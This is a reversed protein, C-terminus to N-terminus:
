KELVGLHIIRAGTASVPNCSKGIVIGAYPAKYECIIDGFIDRQTAIVEDKDVFQALSPIVELSGGHSTYLWRSSTCVIPVHDFHSKRKAIMGLDALVQKIGQVTPKAHKPQFVQPDGVEVTIAPIGMEAAAGRLTRDSPPNDLIITPRQLQAMRSAKAEALDARVYLSNVRGFSATHLDILYDFSSVLRDLLRAAYVEGQNGGELGPMLHNLDNGDRYERTHSVYGPLNIVPCAIICGALTNLKLSEILRHIVSVGNVENGHIACTIGVTPGDKAGKAVILPIRQYRGLADQVMELVVRNLTRAQFESSDIKTRILIERDSYSTSFM